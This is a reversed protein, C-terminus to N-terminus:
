VEKYVDLWPCTSGTGSGMPSVVLNSATTMKDIITPSKSQKAAEEVMLM